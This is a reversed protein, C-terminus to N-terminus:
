DKWEEWNKTKKSRQYAKWMDTGSFYFFFLFVSTPIEVLVSRALARLYGMNKVSAAMWPHLDQLKESELFVGLVPLMQFIVYIMISISTYLAFYRLHM